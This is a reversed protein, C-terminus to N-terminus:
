SVTIGPLWPILLFQPYYFFDCLFSISDVIGYFLPLLSHKYHCIRRTECLESDPWSSPVVLCMQFSLSCRTGPLWRETADVASGGGIRQPASPVPRQDRRHRCTFWRPLHEWWEEWGRQRRCHGRGLGQPRRNCMGPGPTGCSSRQVQCGLRGGPGECFGAPAWQM